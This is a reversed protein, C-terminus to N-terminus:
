SIYDEFDSFTKSFTSHDGDLKKFELCRKNSNPKKLVNVLIATEKGMEEVILNLRFFEKSKEVKIGNDEAFRVVLNLLQDGDQVDYFKTLKRDVPTPRTTSSKAHTQQKKKKKNIAMQELRKTFESKIEEQTPVPGKYWEHSKIQQLSLRDKPNFALMRSMLDIFEDSLHEDEHVSWFKEWNGDYIKKFYKDSPDARIFPPHQTALIFLVM